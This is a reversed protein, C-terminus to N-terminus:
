DKKNVIDKITVAPNVNVRPDYKYAEEIEAIADESVIFGAELNKLTNGVFEKFYKEQTPYRKKLESKDFAKYTGLQFCFGPGTNRIGSSVGVPVAIASNRIGGTAVGIHDRQLELPLKVSAVNLPESKPPLRGADLWKVMHDMAANIVYHRPNNTYPLDCDKLAFFKFIDERVGVRVINLYFDGEIHGTGVTTWTRQFDSDPQLNDPYKFWPALYDHESFIKFIPVHLDERVPEGGVSLLYGDFIKALPQIGNYYATLKIASQSVGVALIKKPVLGGLLTKNSSVARAAQTFVDFALSDNKIKGSDTLDLTGYRTPSWNKLGINPTHVSAQQVSVGVWVHGRRMIHEASGQLWFGDFDFLPTVNNWEVLVIGSFDKAAAPRRVVIRTKYHHDGPLPTATSMPPFQYSNAEGEIFFEEEVYNFKAVLDSDSFFPYNRTKAGLSDTVQIPGSITVQSDSSGANATLLVLPLFMAVVIAAKANLKKAEM